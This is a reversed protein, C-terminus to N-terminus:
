PGHGVQLAYVPNMGAMYGFGDLVSREVAGVPLGLIPVYFRPRGVREGTKAPPIRLFTDPLFWHGSGLSEYNWAHRMVNDLSPIATHFYETIVIIPQHKQSHESVCGFFMTQNSQPIAEHDVM